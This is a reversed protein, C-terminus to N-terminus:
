EIAIKKVEPVVEKVKPLELSLVGNNYSAKIAETDIGDINFSRVFSGYSRERRIYNEKKEENESKHEAKVTLTGANVDISIDEKSFGPLEAELLVSEGRDKIDTKFGMPERSMYERGIDDFFRNMLRATRDFPMLEFM